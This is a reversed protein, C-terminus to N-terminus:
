GLIFALGSGLGESYFKTFPCVGIRDGSFNSIFSKICPFFHPLLLDMAARAALILHQIILVCAVLLPAHTPYNAVLQLRILRKSDSRRFQLKPESPRFELQLDSQRFEFWLPFIKANLYQSFTTM